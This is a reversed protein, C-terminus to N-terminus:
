IKCSQSVLPRIITILMLFVLMVNDQFEIRRTIIFDLSRSGDGYCPTTKAFQVIQEAVDKPLNLGLYIGDQNLCDVTHAVDVEHFITQNNEPRM